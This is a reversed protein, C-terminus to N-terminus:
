NSRTTPEPPPDWAEAVLSDIELPDCTCAGDKAKLISIAGAQLM